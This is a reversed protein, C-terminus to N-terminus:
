LCPCVEPSHTSNKILVRVELLEKSTLLISNLTQVMISCFELNEEVLLIRGLERFLKEPHLMISLQRIIFSSKESLLKRDNQFLKVLSTLFRTFNQETTSIIALVELDASVVEESPDTLAKMLLVFIKDFHQMVAPMNKILLTHLWQLSALRSPVSYKVLEIIAIDILREYNISEKSEKVLKLISENAVSACRRIALRLFYSQLKECVSVCM